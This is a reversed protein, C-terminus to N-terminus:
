GVEVNVIADTLHLQTTHAQNLRQKLSDCLEILEDIQVVIRLQENSSCLPFPMMELQKTSIHPVGNSRGPDISNMFLDSELWRSLFDPTVIDALSHFKAVRQLLLCPLDNTQIVAYKLGTNIIPRDLSIVIDGVELQFRTYEDAMEKHICATELWKTEGHAININRLLKTGQEQFWESKFAFGNLFRYVDGLRVWEWGVPLVFPKEEDSIPPLPKQKKIKGDKILQQKETAIRELLKSAPEDKPDQKVLKGMVALQLITQKLQDISAQTTFLVDFHQSITQWNDNLEDADKADTLTALLVEVLTKHADISSETQAELQDCLVMLEEVKVVIRSQEVLPPIGIVFNSTKTLNIFALATGGSANRMQALFFNSNLTICLYRALVEIKSLKIRTLQPNINGEKLWEPVIIALPEAGSLQGGRAGRNPFIIDGSNIQAKTLTVQKEHTIYKLNNKDVKGSPLISASTLFPVGSKKLESAKPYSEGYNGDNLQFALDGLRIWGWSNPALFHKEDDCIPSLSKQKKIKGESLLRAKETEIKELLKGAPEDTPDQPVLKGRVALELILGRLKKIGVLGLKKSSGRGAASKTKIASTWIDLHETILNEVSM